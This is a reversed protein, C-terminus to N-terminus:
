LDDGSKSSSSGTQIHLSVNLYFCVIKGLSLAGILQLVAAQDQDSSGWAPCPPALDLHPQGGGVCGGDQGRAAKKGQLGRGPHEWAQGEHGEAQGELRTQLGRSSARLQECPVGWRPSASQRQGM